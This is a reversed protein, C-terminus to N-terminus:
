QQLLPRLTLLGALVIVCRYVYEVDVLSGDERRVIMKAVAAPALPRRDKPISGNFSAVRLNLFREYKTVSAACELESLISSSRWPTIGTGLCRLPYQHNDAMTLFRFSYLVLKRGSWQGWSEPGDSATTQRGPAASSSGVRANTKQIMAVTRVDIVSLM